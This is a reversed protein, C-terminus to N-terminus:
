QTSYPFQLGQTGVTAMDSSFDLVGGQEFFPDGQFGTHLDKQKWLDTNMLTNKNGGGWFNLIGKDFFNSTGLFTQRLEEQPIRMRHDGEVLYGYAYNTCYGRADQWTRYYTPDKVLSVDLRFPYFSRYFSNTMQALGSSCGDRWAKQYMPPAGEPMHTFIFGMPKMTTPTKYCGTAVILTLLFFVSFKRPM